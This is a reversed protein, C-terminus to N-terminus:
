LRLLSTSNRIASVDSDSYRRSMIGGDCSRKALGEDPAPAATSWQGRNLGSWFPQAAFLALQGSAPVPDLRPSELPSVRGDFMVTVMCLGGTLRCRKCEPTSCHEAGLGERGAVCYACTEDPDTIPGPGETCDWCQAAAPEVTTATALVAIAFGLLFIRTAKM